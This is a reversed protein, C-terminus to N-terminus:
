PRSPLFPDAFIESMSAGAMFAMRKAHNVMDPNGCVYVRWGALNSNEQLARDDARAQAAWAPADGSSVCPRYDFGPHQLTLAQLEHTLYIGDSTSSGHYLRILGTHGQQIADRAIGYLPALGTGTGILLLPQEPRGPVYFCNGLAEGIAVTAGVQLQKDVWGSVVGYPVRRIHLELDDDLAPVSALSYSRGVGDANFLTLYQGARYQYDEPRALCLRTIESNLKDICTAVTDTRFTGADPLVISMDGSPVCICPLFYNQLVLPDKLWRQSEGTPTGEMARMMCTHCLGSRCSHPAPVGHRTLCDLVTEGPDAEYEQNGFVIKPM